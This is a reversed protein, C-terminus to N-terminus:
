RTVFDKGLLFYRRLIGAQKAKFRRRVSYLVLIMKQDVDMCAVIVYLLSSNLLFM